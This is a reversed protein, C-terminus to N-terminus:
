KEDRQLSITFGIIETPSQEDETQPESVTFSTVTTSSFRGTEDLHRAYTLVPDEHISTGEIIMNGDSERINTLTIYYGTRGLAAELDGNVIEQQVTLLGVSREIKESNTKIITVEKELESVSKKLNQKQLVKQNYVQNTTDLNNQLSNINASSNLILILLPIAIGATTIGTPIGIVKTLSIPKPLYPIPLVNLNASRFTSWRVSSPSDFAMALNIMYRGTDLQESGKFATKMPVVKRAVKKALEAQLEAKSLFEGSVYIQSNADLPNEANNTDFFKITRELDSAVLEIKEEWRLDTNPFTVTRVPQAIGEVMIVIDFETPQLDILVATNEPLMKTLALPKIAMRSVTLGAAKVTKVLSDATKRPTAAIFVHTRGKQNPLNCWSLYLQDTQVPLVRKAERKVAEPLMAKSLLPLTCPRTLSHLGSYGLIIQKKSVKQTKVLQRIRNAVEIEDIVVGDTVLGPELKIEAWRRIRQSRVVLLRISADDIYLTVVDNWM